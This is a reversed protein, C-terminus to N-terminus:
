MEQSGLSDHFISIAKCNLSPKFYDKASIDSSQSHGWLYIPSLMSSLKLRPVTYKSLALNRCSNSPSMFQQASILSPRLKLETSDSPAESLSAYFFHGLFFGIM